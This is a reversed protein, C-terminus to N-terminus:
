ISLKRTTAIFVNFCLKIRLVRKQFLLGRTREYDYCDEPVNMTM